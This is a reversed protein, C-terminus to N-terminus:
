RGFFVREAWTELDLAWQAMPTRQMWEGLAALQNTALLVGMLVLMLGSLVSTSHLEVKTFGLNISWMRGKIFTWFASGRGLRSFFTAVIILPLGLGLAYVFALVAGQVVAIGQTTLLTLVAGYLPGICATWGLAFTAGYLYSGAVSASPQNLFQMGTFGKGFMSMVGFSIIVIGGVVQILDKVSNMTINTFGLPIVIQSGSSSLSSYLLQSLATASAGLAVITTALGFFFAITMVVIRERKAQFTFAFYAPLIPLTCPSLFSFIGALFVAPALLLVSGGNPIAYSQRNDGLLLIGFAVVVLAVLGGIALGRYSRPESVPEAPQTSM